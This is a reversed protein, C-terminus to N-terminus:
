RIHSFQSPKENQDAGEKDASDPIIEAMLIARLIGHVGRFRLCPSVALASTLTAGDRHHGTGNLFAIYRDIQVPDTGDLGEIRHHNVRLDASSQGLHGKLFTLVYLFSIKQRDDIRPRQLRLEIARHGLFILINRLKVVGLDEECPIRVKKLFSREVIL